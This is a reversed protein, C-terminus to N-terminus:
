SSVELGQIYCILTEAKFQSVDLLGVFGRKGRSLEKDLDSEKTILGVIRFDLDLAIFPNICDKDARNVIM